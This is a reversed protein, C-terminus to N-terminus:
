KINLSHSSISFSLFYSAFCFESIFPLSHTSNCPVFYSCYFTIFYSYLGVFCFCLGDLDIADNKHKNGRNMAQVTHSSFGCLWVYVSSRWITQKCHTMHTKLLITRKRM